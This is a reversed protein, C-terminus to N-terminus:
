KGSHHAPAGYGTQFFLFFIKIKYIKKVYIAMTFSVKRKLYILKTFSILWFRFLLKLQHQVYVQYQACPDYHHM